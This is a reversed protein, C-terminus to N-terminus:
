TPHKNEAAMCSCLTVQPSTHTHHLLVTHRREKMTLVNTQRNLDFGPSFSLAEGTPKEAINIKLVTLSITNEGTQGKM